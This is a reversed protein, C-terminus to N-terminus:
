YGAWEKLESFSGSFTVIDTHLKGNFSYSETLTLTGDENQSVFWDHSKAWSIQKETFNTM